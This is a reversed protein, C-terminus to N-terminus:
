NLVKNIFNDQGPTEEVISYHSLCLTLWYAVAGMTETEAGVELTKNLSEKIITELRFYTM